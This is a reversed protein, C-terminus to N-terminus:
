LFVTHLNSITGFPAPSRHGRYYVKPNYRLNKFSIDEGSSKFFTTAWTVFKDGRLVQKMEHMEVSISPEEDRGITISVAYWLVTPPLPRASQLLTVFSTVLKNRQIFIWCSSFPCCDSHNSVQRTVGRLGTPQLAHRILRAKFSLASSTMPFRGSQNWYRSSVLINWCHRGQSWWYLCRLDPNNLVSQRNKIWGFFSYSVTHLTIVTSFGVWRVLTKRSFSITAWNALLNVPKIFGTPEGGHECSCSRSVIM